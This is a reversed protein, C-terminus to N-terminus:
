LHIRSGALAEYTGSGHFEGAGFGTLTVIGGGSARVFGTNNFAANGGGANAVDITLNEGAANALFLGQNNIFMSNMGVSGNGQISHGAGQTFQGSGTIRAGTGSLAIVGTGNVTSAASFSMQTINGGALFNIFGNNSVSQTIGLTRNDLINLTDGTSINVQNVTSNLDFSVVANGVLGNDIFVNWNQGGNGNNPVFGGSWNAANNWNSVGGLWNTNTQASAIGAAGFMMTFLALRTAFSKRHNRNFASKASM